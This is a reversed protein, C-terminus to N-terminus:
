SAVRGLQRERYTRNNMACRQLAARRREELEAWTAPAFGASACLGFHRWCVAWTVHLTCKGIAEGECRIGRADCCHCLKM